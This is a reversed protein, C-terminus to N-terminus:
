PLTVRGRIIRIDGSTPDRWQVHVDLEDGSHANVDLNYYGDKDTPEYNITNNTVNRIDVEAGEITAGSSDEVIGMVNDSYWGSGRTITVKGVGSEVITITKGSTKIVALIFGIRWATEPLSNVMAASIKEEIGPSNLGRAILETTATKRVLYEGDELVGILKDLEWKKMGRILEVERLIDKAYEQINGAENEAADRIAQEVARDELVHQTLKERASERIGNEVHGLDAIFQEIKSSVQKAGSSDKDGDDRLQDKCGIVLLPVLIAMTLILFLSNFFSARVNGLKGNLSKITSQAAQHKGRDSITERLEVCQGKSSM